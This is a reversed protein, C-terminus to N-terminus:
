KKMRMLHNTYIPASGGGGGAAAPIMATATVWEEAAALTYPGPNENDTGTVGLSAWGAIIAGGATAGQATGTNTYGSPYATIADTHDSGNLALALYDGTGASHTETPPDPSTDPTLTVSTASTAEIATTGPDEAGQIRFIAWATGENSTTVAFTTGADGTPPNYIYWLNAGVADDPDEDDLIKSWGETTFSSNVGSADDSNQDVVFWIVLLDNTALTAPYTVDRSTVNAADFGSTVDAVTPQALVDAPVLSLPVALPAALLLALRITALFKM